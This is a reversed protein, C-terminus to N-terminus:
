ITTKKERGKAQVSLKDVRTGIVKKKIEPYDVMIEEILERGQSGAYWFTGEPQVTDLVIKISKTLGEKGGATEEYNITQLQMSILPVNKPLTALVHKKLFDNNGDPWTIDPMIKIGAEQMYRGVWRARYLNWLCEILPLETPQSWNPTTAMRIRSNLVKPIYREPFYWWNDFYTDFAYFGLVVKSVDAMGSTSDIGWNYFWWQDPDPWNRTASGAWSDLNEPLDEFRLLMDERLEPIGWPGVGDFVVTEPAAMQLVGGLKSSASELPGKEPKVRQRPEDDPDPEEGLPSGEFTRSRRIAREAEEEDSIAAQLTALNQDSEEALIARLDEVEDEVYGTGELDPLGEILEALLKEDYRGEDSTKNDALVIRAAREEDTDVWSVIIETWGLRRAALYTHNGALIRNTKKNVVIPKFQGNSELSEAIADVNGIRPNHDYPKISKIPVSETSIITVPGAKKTAVKKTVM